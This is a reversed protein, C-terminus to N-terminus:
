EASAQTEEIDINRPTGCDFVGIDLKDNIFCFVACQRGIKENFTLQTRIGTRKGCGGIVEAAPRGRCRMHHPNRYIPGGRTLRILGRVDGGDDFLDHHLKPSEGHYHPFNPLASESQVPFM